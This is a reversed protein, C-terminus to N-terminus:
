FILKELHSLLNSSLSLVSALQLFHPLALSKVVTIKGKLTLSRSLWPNLIGKIKEIKDSVNLKIMEEHNLSFWTGLTKFPKNVWKIGLSVDSILSGDNYIIIAETKNKNLKLGTYRYFEEFLQLSKKVSAMDTLFLTMDDALQCLKICKENVTLGHIESSNCIIIAILEAPILFLLASLPCGQHIGRFLKFFASQYGNNTVCSEIDNYLIEIWNCFNKGFGFHQLAKNLLSLNITDFAKEFDTLLVICPKTTLNCYDIVDAILRTNEGCFRNKMYGIQDPNIIDSLAPKLRNALIKALIKYDTNLLSLPRWSKLETLDKDKKPILTIVGKKQSPSLQGSEFSKRYSDFLIESISSWFKKTFNLQYAM